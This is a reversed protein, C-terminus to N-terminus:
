SLGYLTRNLENKEIFIVDEYVVNIHTLTLNAKYYKVACMPYFKDEFELVLTSPIEFMDFKQGEVMEVTPVRNLM